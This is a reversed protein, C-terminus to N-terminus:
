DIIKKKYIAKNGVFFFCVVNKTEFTQKNRHCKHLDKM